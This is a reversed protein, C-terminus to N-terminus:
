AVMRQAALRDLAIVRDCAALTEERHAIILITADPLARRLNAILARETAIDIANTAEDLILMRPTRLLARALAIRQREGGSLRTGREDVPTDLGASMAAVMEAAGVQTLATWLEHDPRRATGWSLNHRISDNILYSDQAVYALGRRWDTLTDPELVADGVLIRGEDPELLGTLLDVFSTKGTGSPGSLGITEGALLTLDLGVFVPTPADPYRFTVRDFRIDGDLLTADAGIVVPPGLDARLTRLATFAPVVGFLQQAQMQLARVPGSMRVLIVLAALLTVTPVDLMVAGFIMAAGVLSSVSASAIAVRSQFRVQADQEIRLKASEEGIQAVFADAMDHAVAIKLGGLFQAAEGAIRFAFRATSRGSNAARRSLPVLMVMGLLAFGITLMAVLPSLLLMLAAQVVLMIGAMMIQMITSCAFALRAIESSLIHAIRAHRLRALQSWRAHALDTIVMLRRHDVFGLALDSALRDRTSLVVARVGVLVCFALLVAGLQTAHTTLGIATLKEVILAQWRGGGAPSVLSFIPVLLALGVGELLGGAIMLAVTIALRRGGFHLFDAVLARVDAFTESM